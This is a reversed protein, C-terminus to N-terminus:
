NSGDLLRIKMGDELFHVGATVVREGGKLGQKIFVNDGAMEGTEVPIRQVTMSSEDVVWVFSAGAPDVFLADGPVPVGGGEDKFKDNLYIRLSASMGPLISYQKPTTLSVTVAYTQTRRDAEVQVEELEVPFEPNGPLDFTVTLKEIYELKLVAMVIEPLDAVVKVQAINQVSVIARKARVDQFNEVYRKAIRGDFPATLSTDDLANQATRQHQELGRIQAEQADIDERRAGKKARALDEMAADLQDKRIDMQVKREDYVSKSETGGEWLKRYRSEEIAALEYAAKAASVTKELIRINEIREGAKMKELESRASELSSTVKALENRYDRPDIQAILQGAKIEQGAKVPLEILPGSVRFSLDVQDQAEVLGSYSRQVLGDGSQVVATKAPRILLPAEEPDTDPTYTFALIAGVLFLAGGVIVGLRKNRSM